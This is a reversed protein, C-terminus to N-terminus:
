TFSFMREVKRNCCILVPSNVAFLILFMTLYTCDLCWTYIYSAASRGEVVLWVLWSLSRENQGMTYTMVTFQLDCLHFLIQVSRFKVTWLYFMVIECKLYRPYIFNIVSYNTFSSFYYCHSSYLLAYFGNSPVRILNLLWDRLIWNSSHYKFAQPLSWRLQLWVGRACASGRQLRHWRVCIWSDYIWSM